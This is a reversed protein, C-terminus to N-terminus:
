SAKLSETFGLYFVSAFGSIFLAIIVRRTTKGIQESAERQKRIFAFDKQLAIPNSTDFGFKVLAQETGEKAAVTVAHLDTKKMMM